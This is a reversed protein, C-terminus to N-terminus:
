ENGDNEDDHKEEKTEEIKEKIEEKVKEVEEPKIETITANQTEPEEDFVVETKTDLGMILRFEMEFCVKNESEGIELVAIKGDTSEYIKKITAYIGTYTRVKDGEKLTSLKAMQEEQAKKQRKTSLFMFVIMIGLLVLLFLGSGM